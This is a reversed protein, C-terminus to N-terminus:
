RMFIEQFYDDEEQLYKAKSPSQVLIVKHDKGTELYKIHQALNLLKGNEDEYHTNFEADMIYVEDFKPCRNKISSVLTQVHGRPDKRDKLGISIEFSQFGFESYLADLYMAAGGCWVSLSDNNFKDVLNKCEM